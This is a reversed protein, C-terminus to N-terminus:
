RNNNIIELLFERSVRKEKLINMEVIADKIQESITKETGKTKYM